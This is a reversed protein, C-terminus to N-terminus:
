HKAGSAPIEIAAPDSWSNGRGSVRITYHGAPLEAMGDMRFPTKRLVASENLICGSECFRGIFEVKSESVDWCQGSITWEVTGATATGRALTSTITPQARGGCEPPRREGAAFVYVSYSDLDTRSAGRAELSVLFQDVM